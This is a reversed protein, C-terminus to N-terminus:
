KKRVTIRISNQGVLAHDLEIAYDVNLHGGNEGMEVDLLSTTIGVELSGYPTNYMSHHRRGLEYVMQTCVSGTRLLTVREQEILFTTLTGEMGTLESEEYALEWGFPMAALTGETLLGIDDQGTAEYNQFGKINIMVKEKTM